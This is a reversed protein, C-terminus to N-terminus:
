VNGIRGAGVIGISLKNMTLREKSLINKIAIRPLLYSTPPLFYSTPPKIKNCISRFHSTFLASDLM